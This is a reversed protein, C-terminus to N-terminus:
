KPPKARSTLTSFLYALYLVISSSLIAATGDSGGSEEAAVQGPEWVAIGTLLLMATVAALSCLQKRTM